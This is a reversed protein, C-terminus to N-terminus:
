KSGTRPNAPATSPASAPAGSGPGTTTLPNTSSAKTTPASTQDSAIQHNGTSYFIAAVAAIVVIAVVLWAIPTTAYNQDRNKMTAEQTPCAVLGSVVGVNRVNTAGRIPTVSM